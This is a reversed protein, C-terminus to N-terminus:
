FCNLLFSKSEIHLSQGSFFLINFVAFLSSEEVTGKNCLLQSLHCQQWKFNYDYRICSSIIHKTYNDITGSNLCNSFVDVIVTAGHNTDLFDQMM